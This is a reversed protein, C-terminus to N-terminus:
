AAKGKKETILPIRIVREQETEEMEVRRQCLLWFKNMVNELNGSSGAEETSIRKQITNRVEMV